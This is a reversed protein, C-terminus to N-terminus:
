RLTHIGAIDVLQSSSPTNYLLNLIQCVASREGMFAQLYWICVVTSSAAVNIHWLILYFEDARAEYRAGAVHMLTYQILRVDVFTTQALFVAFSFYSLWSHFRSQHSYFKELDANYHFPLFKLKCLLRVFHKLKAIELRDLM